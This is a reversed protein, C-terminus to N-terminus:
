VSKLVSVRSVIAEQTRGLEEAIVASRRRKARLLFALTMMRLDMRQKTVM